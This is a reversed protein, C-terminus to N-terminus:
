AVPVGWGAPRSGVDRAPLYGTVEAPGGGKSWTVQTGLRQLLWHREEDDLTLLRGVIAECAVAVAVGQGWPSDGLRRWQTSLREM